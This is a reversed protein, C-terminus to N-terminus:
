ALLEELDDVVVDAGAEALARRHDHHAADQVRNVGVVYGFRGARGAAVGAIADEYVVAQAAEVGLLEAGLLFSAPDPKGPLDREAMVVGDVQQEFLGSLGTAALVATTNASSSVVARHMGSAVLQRLYRVSGDFVEVGDRAIRALLLQNKLTSVGNVTLEEPPDDPGGEALEIGRSAFFSRVGDERRKGDVYTLYDAEVDFPEVPRRHADGWRALVQDFADKWAAAHVDATRTLVGDLDFLGARVANPLGLPTREPTSM